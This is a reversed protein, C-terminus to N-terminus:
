VRGLESALDKAGEPAVVRELDKAGAALGERAM